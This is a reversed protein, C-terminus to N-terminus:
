GNAALQAPWIVDASIVDIDGAGAQFSTRLKDFYQSSDAPMERWEVKFGKGSEKNFKAVMKALTGSDEPGHSFVLTGPPVPESGTFGTRIGTCASTGLIAAGALGTGGLRLFERRSLARLPAAAPVSSPERESM